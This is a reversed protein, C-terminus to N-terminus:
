VNVNGPTRSVKWRCTIDWKDKIYDWSMLQLGQLVNNTGDRKPLEIQGLPIDRSCVWKGCKVPPIRQPESNLVWSQWFSRDALWTKSQAAPLGLKEGDSVGYITWELLTMLAEGDMMKEPNLNEGSEMHPKLANSLWRGLSVSDSLLLSGSNADFMFWGKDVTMENNEFKITVLTVTATKINSVRWQQAIDRTNVIM